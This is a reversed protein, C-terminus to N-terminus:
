SNQDSRRSASLRRVPRRRCGAAQPPHRDPAPPSARGRSPSSRAPRAGALRHDGGRHLRQRVRRADVPHDIAVAVHEIDALRPAQLLADDAVRAEGPLAAADGAHDAGGRRHLEHARPGLRLRQKELRVQDLAQARAEVDIEAVVLRKGVDQDGAVVFRRRDHLM